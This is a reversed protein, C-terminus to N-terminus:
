SSQQDGLYGIGRISLDMSIGSAQRVLIVVISGAVVVVIAIVIISLKIKIKM